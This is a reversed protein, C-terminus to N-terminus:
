NAVVRTRFTETLFAQVVVSRLGPAPGLDALLSAVACRDGERSLALRRSSVAGLVQSAVCPVLNGGRVVTSVDAPGSIPQDRYVSDYAVPDGNPYADRRQGAEDFVEFAAGLPDILNHCGACADNEGRYAVEERTTADEPLDESAAAITEPDPAVLPQCLYTQLVNLGRHILDGEQALTGGM